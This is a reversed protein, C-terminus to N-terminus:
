GNRETTASDQTIATKYYLGQKSILQEHTGNEVIRGESLVIIEDAKKLTTIRHSILIITANIKSSTLASVIRADTEMDVASLSDDFVMIDAGQMLGRAIAIRQKQGGSLTVGREGVITDYGNSTALIDKEVDAIRAAESIKEFASGQKADINDKISKSYLFPEQLVLSINKRLVSLKVTNIDVGGITISGNKNQEIDYLRNLLYTLTSKGSGTDGLVGLIKGQKATFSVGNLVSKEGYSFFVDDFVIDGKPMVETATEDDQEFSESLIEDIRKFSVGAKSMEGITRGFNRVPGSITQSYSIFVLMEGLTIQGTAAFYASFAVTIVLQTYSVVDSAGWFFGFVYGLDIWANMAADNKNDFVELEHKERGFARVVRVGTLNEQVRILLDGELEDANLFKTSIKGYFFTTYLLVVPIFLLVITAMYVNMAFMVSLAVVTLIVTRAVDILQKSIFERAVEVDATCRQIIDGTMTKDHWSFPLKLTHSFLANRLNETFRETAKALSLRSVFNFFESFVASFLVCIGISVLLNESQLFFNDFLSYVPSPTQEKLVATDVGYGVLQPILFSILIGIIAAAVSCVFLIGSRKSYTPIIKLWEFRKKQNNELTKRWFIIKQTIITVIKM